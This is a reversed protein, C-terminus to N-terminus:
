LSSTGSSNVTSVRCFCTCVLGAGGCREGKLSLAPLQSPKAVEALHELQLCEQSSILLLMTLSCQAIFRRVQKLKQIRQRLDTQQHSDLQSGLSNM